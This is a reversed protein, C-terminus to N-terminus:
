PSSPPSSLRNNFTQSKVVLDAKVPKSFQGTQGSPQQHLPLTERQAGASHFGCCRGAEASSERSILGCLPKKMMSSRSEVLLEMRGLM